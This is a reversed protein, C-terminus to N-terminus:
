GVYVPKTGPAKVYYIQNELVCDWQREEQNYSQAGL